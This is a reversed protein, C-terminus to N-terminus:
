VRFNMIQQNAEEIAQRVGVLLARKLLPLGMCIDEVQPIGAIDPLHAYEIGGTCSLGFGLKAAALAASKLKDLAVLQENSDEAQTYESCDLMVYDIPLKSLQKLLSIEPALFLAVSINNAQFDPLVEVLTEGIVDPILPRINQMGPSSTEVLTVMEPQITLTKKIIPSSIPIFLNLFTKRLDKLLRADRETLTNKSESFVAAIGRAGSIEGLVGYQVPDFMDDDFISRLHAVENVMLVLRKM